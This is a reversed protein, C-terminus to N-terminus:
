RCFEWEYVHDLRARFALTGIPLFMGVAGDLALFQAQIEVVHDPLPAATLQPLDTVFPADPGLPPGRAGLAHEPPISVRAHLESVAAASTVIAFLYMKNNM